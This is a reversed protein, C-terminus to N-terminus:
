TGDDEEEQDLEYLDVRTTEGEEDLVDFVTATSISDLQIELARRAAEEPTDAYIDIEWTVRYDNMDNDGGSGESDM